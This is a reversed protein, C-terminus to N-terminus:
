VTTSHCAALRLRFGLSGGAGFARNRRGSFLRRVRHPELRHHEAEHQEAQDPDDDEVHALVLVGDGGEPRPVDEDAEADREDAEQHRRAPPLVAFWRPRSGPDAAASGPETSKLTEVSDVPVRHATAAREGATEGTNILRHLTVAM